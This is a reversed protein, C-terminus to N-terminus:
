RRKRPNTKAKRRANDNAKSQALEIADLTMHAGMVDSLAWLTEIEIRSVHYRDSILIREFFPDVSAPWEVGVIDEGNPIRRGPREGVQRFFQRFEGPHVVGAM